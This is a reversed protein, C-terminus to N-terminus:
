EGVTLTRMPLYGSEGEMLYMYFIYWQFRTSNNVHILRPVSFVSLFILMNNVKIDVLRLLAIVKIFILLHNDVDICMIDIGGMGDMRRHDCGLTLLIM